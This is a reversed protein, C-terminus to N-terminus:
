SGSFILYKFELNKNHSVYNLIILKNNTLIYRNFMTPSRNSMNYQFTVLVKPMRTMGGVLLVEGVDSKKVEADTLAKQCPGVTRKIM